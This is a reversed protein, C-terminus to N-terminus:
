GELLVTPRGHEEHRVIRNGANSAADASPEPLLTEPVQIGLQQMRVALTQVDTWDLWPEHLSAYVLHEDEQTADDVVDLFFKQLRRDFGAIVDVPRGDLTSKALHRSM